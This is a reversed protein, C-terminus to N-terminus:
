GPLTFPASLDSHIVGYETRFAVRAKYFGPKHACIATGAALEEATPHSIHVTGNQNGNSWAVFIPQANSCSFDVKIHAGDETVSVSSKADVVMWWCWDSPQKGGILRAQYSGVPLKKLILVKKLDIEEYPEGDKLIEVKTHDDPNLVDILVHRGLLWNAKDGKRPILSMNYKVPPFQQDAVPIYPSPTHTVESIKTYRYFSYEEKPFAKFMGEPDFVRCRARPNVSESVAIQKVEGQENRWIGTVMAVHGGNPTCLTDCLKLLNIDQPQVEIMGPLHRWQHSSFNGDFNLAYSCAVSCVCGYFSHGNQNGLAGLNVTYQFSHPNQVATMFTHLSIFLPVFGADIRSSSYILGTCEQGEEFDGYQQPMLATPTYKINVVQEFNLLANRVGENEPVDPILNMKEETM